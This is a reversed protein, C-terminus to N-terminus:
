VTSGPRVVGNEYAFVVAQTRDRLGLKALVGAVHSKITTPSLYMTDAIESNSLGKAMFRLVEAERDTLRELEQSAPPALREAFQAILRRTISPALLAEGKAVV